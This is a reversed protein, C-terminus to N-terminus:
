ELVVFIKTLKMFNFLIEKRYLKMIISKKKTRCCPPLQSLLPGPDGVLALVVRGLYDSGVKNNYITTARM